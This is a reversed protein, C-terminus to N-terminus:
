RNRINVELTARGRHRATITVTFWRSQRRAINTPPRRYGFHYPCDDRECNSATVLAQQWCTGRTDAKGRMSCTPRTAGQSMAM